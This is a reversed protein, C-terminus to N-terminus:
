GDGVFGNKCKCVKTYNDCIANTHCEDCPNDKKCSKGDGSFGLKCRCKYGYDIDPLCQANVDCDNGNCPDLPKCNQGDGAYGM